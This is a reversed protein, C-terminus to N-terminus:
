RPALHIDTERAHRMFERGRVIQVIWKGFEELHRQLLDRTEGDISNGESNFKMPEFAQILVGPKAM